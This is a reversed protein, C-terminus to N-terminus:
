RCGAARGLGRRVGDLANGRGEYREYARGREDRVVGVEVEAEQSGAANLEGVRDHVGVVKGIDDAGALRAVRQLVHRLVEVQRVVPGVAGEVVGGGGLHEEETQELVGVGEIRHGYGGHLAEGLGGVPGEGVQEVADGGVWSDRGGRRARM